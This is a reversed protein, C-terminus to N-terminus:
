AAKVRKQVPTSSGPKIDNKRDGPQFGPNNLNLEKLTKEQILFIKLILV